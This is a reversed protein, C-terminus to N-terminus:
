HLTTIYFFSLCLKIYLKKKKRKRKKKKMMMMLMMRGVVRQPNEAEGDSWALGIRGDGDKDQKECGYELIRWSKMGGDIGQDDEQDRPRKGMPSWYFYEEM